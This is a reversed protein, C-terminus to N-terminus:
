KMKIINKIEELTLCVRIGYGRNTFEGPKVIWTNSKSKPLSSQGEQWQCSKMSKAKAYFVNLFKTYEPDELGAQIHFTIPLYDFVNKGTLEYYQSMTKFLAKKNGIVCNNEFHNHVRTTCASVKTLNEFHKSRGQM